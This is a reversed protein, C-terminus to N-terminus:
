SGEMEFWGLIAAQFSSLEGATGFKFDHDGGTAPDPQTFLGSTTPSTPSIRGLVQNCGLLLTADDAAGVRTMDMSATASANGGGHCSTCRATLQPAAMSRFAELQTCGDVPMPMGGDEDTPMGGVLPDAADFHVSLLADEPFTTLVVTGTDFPRSTNPDVAIEVGAFRDVPDAIPAGEIWSVFVPHELRAGTPGAAITVSDLFMGDGVRAAVFHLTTGPLGLVDLPLANFGEHLAVPTTAIEREMPDVMTGEAAELEIWDRVIDQEGGSLAPGSHEGKTLLRSSDPSDLDVIAPYSLITTRVDPNPRLFDPGTRDAGHCAGCRAGLMPEVRTEFVDAASPGTSADTTPPPTGGDGMARVSIMGSRCGASAAVLLAIVSLQTLTRV